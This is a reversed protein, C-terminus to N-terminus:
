NAGPRPPTNSYFAEFSTAKAFHEGLEVEAEHDPHVIHVTSSPGDTSNAPLYLVPRPSNIGLLSPLDSETGAEDSDKAGSVIKGARVWVPLVQQSLSMIGVRVRDEDQSQMWRVQGLGWHGDHPDRLAVLEDLQINSVEDTSLRLCFGNNSYDILRAKLTTAHSATQPSDNQPTDSVGSLLGHISNIGIAIPLDEQSRLRDDNRGRSRDWGALLNQLTTLSVPTARRAFSVREQGPRIQVLKKRLQDVLTSTDLVRIAAHHLNGGEELLDSSIPPGDSALNILFSVNQPRYDTAARLKVRDTMRELNAYVESMAAAEFHNPSLLSLLMLRKFEARISTKRGSRAPPRVRRGLLNNDEALRFYWYLQKWVGPPYPLYCLRYNCLINSRYRFLRHLVTAVLRRWTLFFLHSSDNLVLQYGHILELQLATSLEVAERSAHALPLPKGAYRRALEPLLLTLRGSVVELVKFRLRTDLQQHKIKGLMQLIQRVASEADDVPLKDLWLRIRAPQMELETATAGTNTKRIMAGNQFQASSLDPTMTPFYSQNGVM